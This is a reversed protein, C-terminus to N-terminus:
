FESIEGHEFIKRGEETDLVLACSDTLDAIKGKYTSSGDSFTVNRGILFCRRRYEDMFDTGNECLDYLETIVAAALQNRSLHVGISVAKEKLDGPFDDTTVNIGIGVIMIKVEGTEFDSSAETLIGCLKKEGIYLDNIWKIMPSVGSVREIGRAAAVAAAATYMVAKEIPLEPHLICSLYLGTGEPSYFSRGFRGRGESQTEAAFVAAKKPETICFRKAEDNTSSVSKYTFIGVDSLREPLYSKIGEASLLDSEDSLMYGKRGVTEVAHGEDKLSNIAKWVANRSVSYRAALATGSLPIGRNQELLALIENKLSM